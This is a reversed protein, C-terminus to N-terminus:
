LADHSGAHWGVTCASDWVVLWWVVGARCSTSSYTRWRGGGCSLGMDVRILVRSLYGVLRWLLVVVYWGVMCGHLWRRQTRRLLSCSM